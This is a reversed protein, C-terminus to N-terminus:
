FLPFIKILYEINCLSIPGSGWFESGIRSSLCTYRCSYPAHGLFSSDLLLSWLALSLGQGLLLAFFGTKWFSEQRVGFYLVILCTLAPLIAQCPLVRAVCAWCVSSAGRFGFSLALHLLACRHDLSSHVSHLLLFLPSGAEVLHLRSGHDVSRWPYLMTRTHANVCVCVPVRACYVSLNSFLRLLCTFLGLM